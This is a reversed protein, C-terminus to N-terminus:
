DQFNIVVNEGRRTFQNQFLSNLLTLHRCMKNASKVELNCHDIIILRFLLSM